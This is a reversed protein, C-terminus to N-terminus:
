FLLLDIPLTWKKRGSRSLKSERPRVKKGRTQVFKEEAEQIVRDLHKKIRDAWWKVESVSTCKASLAIHENGFLEVRSYRGLCLYAYPPNLIGNEEPNEFLLYIPEIPETASDEENESEIEDIVKMAPCDVGCRGFDTEIPYAKCGNPRVPYIQCNNGEGLFPCPKRRTQDPRIFIKGNKWYIIDEYYHTVLDESEMKLFESMKQINNPDWPLGSKRCCQGCRQCKFLSWRDQEM